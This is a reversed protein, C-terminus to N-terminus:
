NRFFSHHQTPPSYFVFIQNILPTSLTFQGGYLSQFASTELTLGEDSCILISGRLISQWSSYSGNLKIRQQRGSMYSELLVLSDDHVGYAKLKALFPNHPITDFAKSLDLSAIAVIKREDLSKKWDEVIRLLAFECSYNKKCASILVSIFGDFYSYLQASLVKEFINNFVPLVTVPRYNSKELSDDKKFLPTM